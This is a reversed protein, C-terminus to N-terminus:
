LKMMFKKLTKFGLLSVIIGIKNKLRVHIDLLCGTRLKCINKWCKTEIDINNYHYKVLLRLINFNASLQRSKAANVITPHNNKMYIVIKNTINLVDTRHLNFSSLISNEHQLYYYYPATSFIIKQAKEFILYFTALDEYLLGQPFRINQILSSKYLYGNASNTLIKQYLIAKLSKEATYEYIKIQSLNVKSESNLNYVKKLSCGAIDATYQKLLTYLYDIYCTEVYDDSDIFTIYKGTAINIGANRADSLGGNKKHIVQIRTDKLAYEDCIIGCKDPSGDDVLIIELNKYTQRLISDICKPLYQEVKYCPIIISILPYKM